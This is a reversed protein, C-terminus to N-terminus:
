VQKRVPVAEVRHSFDTEDEGASGNVRALTAAIDTAHTEL